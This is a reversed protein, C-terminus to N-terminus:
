TVKVPCSGSCYDHLALGQHDILSWFFGAGFLMLSFIASIFRLSAIKWTIRGSNFAQLRINWVRMGATQGGHMWQWSFYLYCLSLLYINYPINGSMIANGNTLPIIILTGFFLITFLLLLDYFIAAFRRLLSCTQYHNDKRYNMSVGSNKM